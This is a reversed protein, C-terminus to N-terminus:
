HGSVTKLILFFFFPLFNSLLIFSCKSVAFEVSNFTWTYVYMAKHKFLQEKNISTGLSSEHWKADENCNMQCAKFMYKPLYM